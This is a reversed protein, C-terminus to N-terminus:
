CEAGADRAKGEHDEICRVLRIVGGLRHVRGIRDWWNCVDVYPTANQLWRMM